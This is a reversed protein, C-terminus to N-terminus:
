CLRSWRLLTRLPRLNLKRACRQATRSTTGSCMFRPSLALSTSSIDSSCLCFPGLWGTAQVHFALTLVCRSRLLWRSSASWACACWLLMVGLLRGAKGIVSAGDGVAVLKLANFDHQGVMEERQEATPTGRLPPTPPTAANLQAESKTCVKPALKDAPAYLNVQASQVSAQPMDPDWEPPLTMTTIKIGFEDLKAQLSVCCTDAHSHRFNLFCHVKICDHVVNADVSFVDLRIMGVCTSQPQWKDDIWHATLGVFRIKFGSWEDFTISVYGDAGAFQM